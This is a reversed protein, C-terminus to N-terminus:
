LISRFSGLLVFFIGLGLENELFHPCKICGKGKQSKEWSWLIGPRTPLHNRPVWPGNCRQRPSIGSNKVPSNLWWNTTTEPKLKNGPFSMNDSWLYMFDFTFCITRSHPNNHSTTLLLNRVTVWWPKTVLWGGNPLHISWGWLEFLHPPTPSPSLRQDFLTISYNGLYTMVMTWGFQNMMMMM